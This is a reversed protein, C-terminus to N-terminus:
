TDESNPEPVADVTNLEALALADAEDLQARIRAIELRREAPSLKTTPKQERYDNRHTVVLGAVAALGMLAQVAVRPEKKRTEGAIGDLQALVRGRLDELDGYAHSVLRRAEAARQRVTHVEVGWRRAVEHETVGLQWQGLAMLESIERTQEVVTASDAPKRARALTESMFPLKGYFSRSILRM